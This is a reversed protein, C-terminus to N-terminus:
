AGHYFICDKKMPHMCTRCSKCPITWGFTKDEEARELTEQTRKQHMSLEVDDASKTVPVMRGCEVIKRLKASADMSIGFNYLSQPRSASYVLVKFLAAAL